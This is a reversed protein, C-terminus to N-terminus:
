RTGIAGRRVRPQKSSIASAVEMEILEEVKDPKTPVPKPAWKIPHIHVGYASNSEILKVEDENKATYFGGEFKIEKGLRLFPWQVCAYRKPTFEDSM